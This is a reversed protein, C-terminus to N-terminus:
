VLEINELKSKFYDVSHGNYEKLNSKCYKLGNDGIFFKKTERLLIERKQLYFLNDIRYILIARHTFKRTM